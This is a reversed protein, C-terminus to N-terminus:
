AVDGDRRQQKAARMVYDDNRAAFAPHTEWTGTIPNFFQTGMKPITKDQAGLTSTKAWNPNTMMEYTAWAAPSTYPSKETPRKGSASFKSNLDKEAPQWSKEGWTSMERRNKKWNEDEANVYTLQEQMDLETQKSYAHNESKENLFDSTEEWDDEENSYNNGGYINTAYGRADDSSFSRKVSSGGSDSAAPAVMSDDEVPANAVSGAAVHDVYWHAPHDGDSTGVHGCQGTGDCWKHHPTPPNSDDDM